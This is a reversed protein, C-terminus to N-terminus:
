YLSPLKIKNCNQLFVDYVCVVVHGLAVILKVDVGTDIVSYM